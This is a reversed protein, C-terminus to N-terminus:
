GARFEQPGADGVWEYHAVVRHVYRTQDAFIYFSWGIVPTLWRRFARVCCCGQKSARRHRLDLVEVGGTEMRM